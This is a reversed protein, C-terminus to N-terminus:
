LRTVVTVTQVGAAETWEVVVTAIKGNVAVSGAGAPLAATITTKWEALDTEAVTGPSDVPDTALAINYAGNLALARNARMRDLIDEARQVARSRLFASQNDRLAQGQLGALGLLGISLVLVAVLVEILSFGSRKNPSFPLFRSTFCSKSEAYASKM